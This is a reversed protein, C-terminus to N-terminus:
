TPKTASPKLRVPTTITVIGREVSPQCETKAPVVVVRIHRFCMGRYGELLNLRREGAYLSCFMVMAPVGCM